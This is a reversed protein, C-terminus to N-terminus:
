RRPMLWDWLRYTTKPPPKLWVVMGAKREVEHLCNEMFDLTNMRGSFLKGVMEMSWRM